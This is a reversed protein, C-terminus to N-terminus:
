ALRVLIAGGVLMLAGILRGGTIEQVPLGMFGIRDLVLGAVLQGAIVFAMTAMAGLRPTLLVTSTVFTAGLAGGAFYTWLPPASWNISVGQASTLVAAVLMLLVAGVSFSVAAAAVSLGLGRALAVNIPAQITVFAGAAVGLLAWLLPAVM